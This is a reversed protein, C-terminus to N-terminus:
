KGICFKSFIRGIIDDPTMQGGLTSLADLAQRLHGAILEVQQIALDPRQSSLRNRVIDLHVLTQRLASDHRPQLALMDAMVSISRSALQETIAQRLAEIGAGTFASVRIGLHPTDSRDHRNDQRLESKSFVRIVPKDNPMEHSIPTSQTNIPDQDAPDDVVYLILDAEEIARRAAAQADRDLAQRPTDLGAIDVLLVEANQGKPNRITLPEALVDRTTGPLPSTVARERGLLANFLTSKGSSPRGVLVIRPLSEIAGWSRSRALLGTVRHTLPELRAFLQGSTILVVDEQDTFDISAEVLALQDALESVTQTAFSGLTGRRLLSAAHLQSDSTATITAAIGEAQTLSLKGALFARFTFEGPEALRAGLEMSRHVVRDLLAPNGPCQLELMDQGTYSRPATSATILVPLAPAIWARGPAGKQTVIPLVIQQTTLTGPSVFPSRTHPDDADAQRLLGQAISRTEPGSCRILGRFSRGPPSSVAVITDQTSSM